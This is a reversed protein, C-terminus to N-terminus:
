LDEAGPPGAGSDRFAGKKWGKAKVHIEGIQQSM